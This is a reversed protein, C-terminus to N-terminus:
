WHPVLKGGEQLTLRLGSMRPRAQEFFLAAFLASDTPDILVTSLGYMAMVVYILWADGSHRM